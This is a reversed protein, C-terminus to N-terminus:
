QRGVAREHTRPQPAVRSVVAGIIEGERWGEKTYEAFFPDPAGKPEGHCYLCAAKSKIPEAYYFAESTTRQATSVGQRLEALLELSVDDARNHPNRPEDVVMKVWARGGTAAPVTESFVRDAVAAPLILNKVLLRQYLKNVGPVPSQPRGFHGAMESRTQLELKVLLYALEEDAGIRAVGSQDPSASSQAADRPPPSAFMIGLNVTTSLVLFVGLIIAITVKGLGNQKM